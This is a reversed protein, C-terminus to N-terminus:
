ESRDIASLQVTRVQGLLEELTRAVGLSVWTTGAGPRSDRTISAGLRERGAEDTWTGVLIHVCEFRERAASVVDAVTVPETM